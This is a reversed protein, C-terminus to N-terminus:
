FADSIVQLTANPGQVRFTLDFIGNCDRDVQIIWAESASLPDDAATGDGDGVDVSAFSCPGFESNRVGDGDSDGPRGNTQVCLFFDNLTKACASGPANRVWASGGLYDFGYRPPLPQPLSGDLPNTLLPQSPFQAVIGNTTVDSCSVGGLSQASAGSPALVALIGAAVALIGWRTRDKRVFLPSM